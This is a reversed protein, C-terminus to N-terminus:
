AENEKGRTKALTVAQRVRKRIEEFEKRRIMDPPLIWSGGCAFVCKLALYDGANDANLGGTPLFQVTPYPGSLAKLMAIGGCAEAPFFKVHSLDMSLAQEIESPTMVGPIATLDREMARSMVEKRFGPAVVFAAGAEKAADVQEETLVTGAGVLLEPYHKHIKRICSAASSTRFTVEVLGLGEELLIEAIKLANESTDIVAVPVIGMQKMKEFVPDKKETNM